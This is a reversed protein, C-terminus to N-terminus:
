GIRKNYIKTINASIECKYRYFEQILIQYLIRICNPM